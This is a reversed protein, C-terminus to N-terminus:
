TVGLSFYVQPSLDLSSFSIRHVIWRAVIGAVGLVLPGKGYVPSAWAGTQCFKLGSCSVLVSVACVFAPSCEVSKVGIPQIKFYAVLAGNFAGFLATVVIGILVALFLPM